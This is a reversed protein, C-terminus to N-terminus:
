SSVTSETNEIMGEVVNKLLIDKAIADTFVFIDSSPPARTLAM